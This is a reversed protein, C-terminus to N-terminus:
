LHFSLIFKDYNNKICSINEFNSYFYSSDDFDKNYEEVFYSKDEQKRFGSINDLISLPQKNLKGFRLQKLSHFKYIKQNNMYITVYGSEFDYSYYSNM